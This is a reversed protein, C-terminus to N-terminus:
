RAGARAPAAAAPLFRVLLGTEDLCDVPRAGSLIRIPTMIWLTFYNHPVKAKLATQFLATVRADLHGDPRFQFGPCFTGDDIFVRALSQLIPEPDALGSLRAQVQELPPLGFESRLATWMEDSVPGSFGSM